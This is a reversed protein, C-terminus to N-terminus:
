DEESDDSLVFDVQKRELHVAAIRVRVQDGLTFRKGNSAGLIQYNEEDFHYYDDDLSRMSVLGECHNDNLEVFFGFDSVGSITGWFDEGLFRQLYEAQKYRISAREAHAALQEMDSSHQCYEEYEEKNVSKGEEILYHTLLRHVMLDPYRRIPSTFHTYYPFALGYHGINDTSYVAKSMSRIALMSLFNNAASGQISSLLTNIKKGVAREGGTPIFDYGFKRAMQSLSQLKEEDPAAHIRYVFTPPTQKLKKGIHEAVTRNALLMFEEVLKHAAKSEKLIVGLPHGEEDLQFRVEAREFAISGNAFRKERLKEALRNLTLIETALEGQGTEIIEQAEEYSFRRDSHIVTRRIRYDIVEADENLEFICSYSRSTEHPRLSCLENCLREPLMPITRDVLYISTARKYAEQDIIGGPEVYHSVDAIHVGVEINGNELQRLSLADDFDKADVPDITMTTVARFDEREMLEEETLTDSLLNAAEEVEKPYEYPLGYELLIAHMEAENVGRKGLIAIVEGKPNKMGQQWATIKVAVMMDQPVQMTKDRPIYVDQPLARSDPIFFTDGRYTKLKGIYVKDKRELVELVIIKTRQRSLRAKVRVRDGDLATSLNEPYISFSEQSQEDIFYPYAGRYHIEGTMEMGKPEIRYRGIEVTEIEGKQALEELSTMVLQKDKMTDLRLVKAVQRYNMIKGQAEELVRHVAHEMKIPSWVQRKPSRKSKKKTPIYKSRSMLIRKPNNM